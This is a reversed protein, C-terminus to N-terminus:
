TGAHTPARAPAMPRQMALTTAAVLDPNEAIETAQWFAAGAVVAASVEHGQARLAAISRESAPSLPMGERAPVDFWLVPLPATSPLEFRAIQLGQMVAAPLEYGGIEVTHGQAWQQAPAPRAPEAAAGAVIQGASHLRVFQQVHQAGHLVPQWLLVGQVSLARVLDPVFLAGARLGWLWLPGRAAWHTSERVLDDIWGAWTADRLEGASDGCGFLDLRVVRWGASALARAAEACIRRSKNMEEGFAPLLMLTGRPETVEPECVMRCRPGGTFEVLSISEHLDVAATM